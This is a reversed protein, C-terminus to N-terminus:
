IEILFSNQMVMLIVILFVIKNMIINLSKKGRLLKKHYEKLRKKKKESM